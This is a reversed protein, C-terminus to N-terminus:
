LHLGNIGNRTNNERIKAMGNDHLEALATPRRKSEYLQGIAQTVELSIAQAVFKMSNLASYDIGKSEVGNKWSDYAKEYSDILASIKKYDAEKAYLAADSLIQKSRFKYEWVVKDFKYVAQGIISDDKTLFAKELEHAAL